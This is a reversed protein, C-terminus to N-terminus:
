PSIGAIANQIAEQLKRSRGLLIMVRPEVGGLMPNPIRFWLATKKADGQFFKGVLDLLIAWEVAHREIEPPMQTQLNVSNRPLRAAQAVDRRDFELMEAVAQLNAKRGLDEWIGPLAGSPLDSFLVSDIAPM